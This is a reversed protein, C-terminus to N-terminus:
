RRGGYWNAIAGSMSPRQGDSPAGNFGGNVPAQGGAPTGTDLLVRPNSAVIEDVLAKVATVFEAGKGPDLDALKGAKALLAGVIDGDAKAERAARDIAQDIRLTRAEAQATTAATRAAILEAAADKPDVQADGEAGWAKALDALAEKRANEKSLTRAKGGEEVAIRKREAELYAKIAPSEPDFAPAPTPPVAPPTPEGTIPAPGDAAGDRLFVQRGRRVFM